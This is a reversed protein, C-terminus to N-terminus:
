ENIAQASKYHSLFLFLWGLVLYVIVFVPSQLPLELLAKQYPRALEGCLYWMAIALFVYGVLQLDAATRASGELRSRVKAWFWLIGLFFALILGGAIGFLLSFHAPMPVIRFKILTDVIFLAFAGLGFLWINKRKSRVYLLVGIGALMSGIPVSSAWLGFLPSTLGWITQNAQELTMNRYIPRVVWSGGLGVGIILVVAIWYLIMGTKNTTM